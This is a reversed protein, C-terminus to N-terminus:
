IMKATMGNLVKSISEFQEDLKSNSVHNNFNIKAILRDVKIKDIQSMREAWADIHETVDHAQTIVNSSQKINDTIDEVTDNVQQYSEKYDSRTYKYDTLGFESMYRRASRKSCRWWKMIAEKKEAQTMDDDFCKILDDACEPKKKTSQRTRKIEPCYAFGYQVAIQEFYSIDM